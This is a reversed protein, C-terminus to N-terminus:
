DNKPKTHIRWFNISDQHTMTGYLPKGGKSLIRRMEGDSIEYFIIGNCFRWWLEKGVWYGQAAVRDNEYEEKLKNVIAECKESESKHLQKIITDIGELLIEKAQRQFESEKDEAVIRSQISMTKEDYYTEGRM